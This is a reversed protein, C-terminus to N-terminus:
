QASPSLTDTLGVESQKARQAAVIDRLEEVTLWPRSSHIMRHCNSCVLELDELRTRDGEKLTHVPRTHHCEIFGEGRSGFFAAFDFECCACALRGHQQMAQAKKDGVLKRSRERSRHLRTVERGEPADVMFEIEDEDEDVRAVVVPKPGGIFASVFAAPLKFAYGQLPRMPRKLGLEFPFYLPGTSSSSLEEMIQQVEATRAILDALHVPATLKTFGSLPRVYGDQPHPKTGKSRAYTGRAAWTVEAPEPMGSITSYSTIASKPKEYHFVIDGVNAEEFLTYRWNSRGGGDQRPARLDQGLTERDTVELWFREEPKDSWWRM